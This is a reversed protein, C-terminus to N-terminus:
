ENRNAVVDEAGELPAAAAISAAQLKNRAFAKEM